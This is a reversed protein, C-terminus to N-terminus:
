VDNEKQNQMAREAMAKNAENEALMKKLYDREQARKNLMMHREHDMENQLRDVLECEAAFEQKKERKRRNKEDQFQRDRSEKELRIKEAHAAKKEVEREGLLKVHEDQMKEYMRKENQEDQKKNEKEMIQRDLESRILRRRERERM